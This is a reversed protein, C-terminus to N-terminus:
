TLYVIQETRGNLIIIGILPFMKEPGNNNKKKDIQFAHSYM